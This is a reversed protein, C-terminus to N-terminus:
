GAVRSCDRNFLRGPDFAARLRTQLARQVASLPPQEALGAAFMPVAYGQAGVAAQVRAHIEAAPLVDGSWWRQAGGWDLIERLPRADLTAAPPMSLRWLRRGPECGAIRLDRLAEWWAEDEDIAAPGLRSLAEDIAAAAGALRVRLREGDYALGALPWAERALALMRRRAENAALSWTLTLSREPRPAVRLAVTAIPGLTGWAGCVLRSVDYGAVNKMVRGGFRLLEGAPSLLRVGLVHDRLAGAWPRAPGSFGAAVVGGITSGPGCRPPECALRQGHAALLAEIEALPTGARAEIVLEAPEYALVGRYSSMALPSGALPELLFAKTGGGVIALPSGADASARIREALERLAASAGADGAPDAPATWSM